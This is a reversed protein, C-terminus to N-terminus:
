KCCKGDRGSRTNTNREQGDKQGANTSVPRMNDHLSISPARNDMAYKSQLQHDKNYVKYISNAISNFSTKINIDNKASVELFGFGKSTAYEKGMEYSVEKNPMDCKNALLMIVISEESHNM